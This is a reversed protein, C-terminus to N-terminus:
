LEDFNIKDTSLPLSQLLQVRNKVNMKEYLSHLHKKVTNVSIHMLDAIRENSYGKVAYNLLESERGTLSFERSIREHYGKAFFYRTDGKKAEYYLRYALHKQLQDMIFLERKTFDGSERRRYFTILGVVEERFVINVGMSYQFQEPRYFKQYIDSKEMAAETLLESQLWAATRGSIQLWQLPNGSGSTEEFIAAAKEDMGYALSEKIQEGEVLSFIAGDFGVLMHLWKLATKRMEDFSYIFSVNYAIENLFMWESEQLFAM